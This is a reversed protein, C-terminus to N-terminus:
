KNDADLPYPFTINETQINTWMRNTGKDAAQPPPPSLRSQIATGGRKSQIPTGWYKM